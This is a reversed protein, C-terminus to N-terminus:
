SDMHPSVLTWLPWPPLCPPTVHGAGEETQIPSRFFVIDTPFDNGMAAPTVLKPSFLSGRILIRPPRSEKWLEKRRYSTWETRHPTLLPLVSLSFHYLQPRMRNFFCDTLDGMSHFWCLTWKSKNDYSKNSHSVSWLSYVLMQLM